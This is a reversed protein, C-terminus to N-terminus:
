PIVERKNLINRHMAMAKGGVKMKIRDTKEANRMIASSRSKITTRGNFPTEIRGCVNIKM